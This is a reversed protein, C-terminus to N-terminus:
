NASEDKVGEKNYIVPRMWCLLVFQLLVSKSGHPHHGRHEGGGGGRSSLSRAHLDTYFTQGSCYINYLGSIPLAGASNIPAAHVFTIVAAQSSGSQQQYLVSLM